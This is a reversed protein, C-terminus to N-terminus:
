DKKNTPWLLFALVVVVALGVIWWYISENSTTESTEADPETDTDTPTYDRDLSGDETLPVNTPTIHELEFTANQAYGDWAALQAETLGPAEAIYKEIQSTPVEFSDGVDLLRPGADQVINTEAFIVQAYTLEISDDAQDYLDVSRRTLKSMNDGAVAVYQYSEPVIKLEQDGTTDITVTEESSTTTAEPEQASTAANGLVVFVALLALTLLLTKSIQGILNSERPKM